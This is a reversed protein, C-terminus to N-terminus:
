KAEKRKTVKSRARSRALDLIVKAFMDMCTKCNEIHGVETESMRLRDNEAVSQLRRRGLHSSQEPM